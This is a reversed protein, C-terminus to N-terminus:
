SEKAKEFIHTVDADCRLWKLFARREAGFGGSFNFFLKPAPPHRSGFMKQILVKKPTAGFNFKRKSMDKYKDLINENNNVININTDGLIFLDNEMLNFDNLGKSLYDLFHNDTPPKYVVAISITKKNPLLLDFFINEIKDFLYNQSNFCFIAESIVHLM